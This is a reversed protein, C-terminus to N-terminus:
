KRRLFSPIELNVKDDMDDSFSPAVPEQVRVSQKQQNRKAISRGTMIEIFSRRRPENENVILKEVEEVPKAPTPVHNPFLEPEEEPMKLAAKPVFFSEQSELAESIQSEESKNNEEASPRNIIAKFLASSKPMDSLVESKEFKDFDEFSREEQPMVSEAIPMPSITAVDDVGEDVGEELASNESLQQLVEDMRDFHNNSEEVVEVKTEEIVPIPAAVPEAKKLPEAVRPAQEDIGTAVISVRIKGDLNADFSSGFIINADEDVEEKIRNVAEDVEMLTIDQSATINILVGKAGKMSYNDLLPNNLAQEAAKVARDEGEAEGTGMIAKGKDEMIAKVDAFDLNILGPMMMLDTISRVGDYLVNDAMVFAESLTTNKNANRFLNQNLIVIISDVENTFNELATDATQSRKKGEFDFPKTVVGVTLIGMEKAAKAVVPAAGSGTGGGMGATIFVMNAGELERKIDEIAEEAAMKGIEPRAGAGLGKTTELGLQIRRQTKSNELAQADTNAVIFDIGELKKSIMNNVANGGGGGVGIVSIRPKLQIMNKEPVALKISM